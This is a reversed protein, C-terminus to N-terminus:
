PFKCEDVVITAKVEFLMTTFPYKNPIKCKCWVRHDLTTIRFMGKRENNDQPIEALVIVDIQCSKLLLLTLFEDLVM